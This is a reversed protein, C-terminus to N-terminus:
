AGGVANLPLYIDTVAQSEAVEPFFAVRQAYVPFDRLAEGSAPLWQDHLFAIAPRLDDGGGVQRLVACRGAPIEGAVVGADNPAVPEDTAACLDIHFQGPDPHFVNFTASVAPRLGVQKRWAIFRAISDGLAAADGRHKLMAVRIAPVDVIRVHEASFRSQM